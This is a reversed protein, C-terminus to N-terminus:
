WTVGTTVSVVGSRRMAWNMPLIMRLAISDTQFLSRVPAAVVTPTGATGIALPTTDEMHLTAQDSVDYLPEDGEVSVFDAADLLIITTATVTGSIIIPYGRLNGQALEQQFPFDGGANQRMSLSLARAPNMIWVPQRLNGNTAAVLEGAMLLIDTVAAAFDAGSTGVLATVGNRLGAPRISSAATADLLVSDIAVSTDESIADRILQEISPVSHQAIERTFTSIVALKKPTLTTASFAGQRVPIPSGEGVFSGAITPTAARTPVSIVGNRGFNLRLGRGALSPYVSAPPLSEMFAANVTQVLQSAWGSTTTTAPASAARMVLDMDGMRTAHDIFLKTAEDGDYQPISRRILDPDKRTVHSILKVVCSRIFIDRETVKPPKPMAFPRRNDVVIDASGSDDNRDVITRTGLAKEVRQLRDLEGEAREVEGTLDDTLSVDANTDDIHATLADKARVVLSQADEIRKSLPLNMTRAKQAPPIGAQEGIHRRVIGGDGEAHEGFVLNMTDDSIHLSKAVRLANPNAPLGVVSCEVLKGRKYRVGRGTTLPEVELPKFGVSAGRIIGQEVLARIEDIRPSTGKEAFILRGKLKGREIRVNDWKGIPLPDGQKGHGFLAVPNHQFESLDLGAPEVVDGMRDLTSDSMVFEFGGDVQVATPAFKYVINM